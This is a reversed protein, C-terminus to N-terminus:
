GIWVESVIALGIRLVLIVVSFGLLLVITSKPVFYFVAGVLDLFYTWASSTTIQSIYSTITTFFTGVGLLTLLPNFVSLVAIILVSIFSNIM